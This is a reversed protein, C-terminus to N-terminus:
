TVNNSRARPYIGRRGGAQEKGVGPVFSERVRLISRLFLSHSSLSPIHTRGALSASHSPFPLLQSFLVLSRRLAAVLFWPHLLSPRERKYPRAYRPFSFSLSCFSPRWSITVTLPRIYREVLWQLLYLPCPRPSSNGVRSGLSSPSNYMVCFV